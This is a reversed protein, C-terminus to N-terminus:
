DRLLHVSNGREMLPRVLTLTPARSLGHLRLILQGAAAIGMERWPQIIGVIDSLPLAQKRLLFQDYGCISIKSWPEPLHRLATALSFLYQSKLICTPRADIAKTTEHLWGLVAEELNDLNHPSPSEYLIAHPKLGHERMAMEYGAFRHMFSSIQTHHLKAGMFIIHRHGYEIAHEVLMRSGLAFDCSVNDFHEQQCLGAGVVPCPLQALAYSQEESMIKANLVVVGDVRETGVFEKLRDVDTYPLDETVLEADLPQLVTQLGDIVEQQRPDKQNGIYGIRFPLSQNKQGAM